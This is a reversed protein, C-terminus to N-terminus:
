AGTFTLGLIDEILKKAKMDRIFVQEGSARTYKISGDSMHEVAVTAITTGPSGTVDTLGRIHFDTLKSAM